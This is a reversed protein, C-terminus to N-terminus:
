SPDWLPVGLFEALSAGDKRIRALDGHDVVNVRTGDVLVLNLEYSTYSGKGGHYESIVQLAHVSKLHVCGGVDPRPAARGKWFLGRTRDFVIPETGSWLQVAGFAGFALGAFVAGLAPWGKEALAGAVGFVICGCGVLVIFCYVLIARTAARFDVRDVGTEAL